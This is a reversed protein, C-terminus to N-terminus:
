ESSRSAHIIVNPLGRDATSPPTSIRIRDLGRATLLSLLARTREEAGDSEVVAQQVCTWTAPTIGALVRAEAGEVDVKLLDIRPLSAENLAFSLTKQPVQLRELGTVRDSMWQGVPGKPLWGITREVLKAGPGLWSVSRGVRAGQAAFFTEFEKRKGELDMTSDRPFRKFYYFECPAGADEATGLAVNFARHAGGTLWESERLNRDLAAFLMPVPEFCFLRAERECRRAVAIAFAGINAGVDVVTAGRSVTAGCEFYEEVEAFLTRLEGPSELVTAVKGYETSVNRTKSTM